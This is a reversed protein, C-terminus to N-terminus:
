AALLDKRQTVTTGHLGVKGEHEAQRSAERHGEGGGGRRDDLQEFGLM